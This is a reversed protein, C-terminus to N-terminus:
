SRHFKLSDIESRVGSDWYRTVNKTSLVRGYRRRTIVNRVYHTTEVRSFIKRVVIGCGNSVHGGDDAVDVVFRGLGVYVVDSM